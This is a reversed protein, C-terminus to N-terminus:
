RNQDVISKFRNIYEEKIKMGLKEQRLIYSPHYLGYFCINTPAHYYIHKYGHMFCECAVKGLCIVAKPKLLIIERHKYKICNEIESNLPKTNNPPSCFLVNSIYCEDPILRSERIMEFVLSGSASRGESMPIGTINGGIQSPAEGIIMIGNKMNGYSFAIKNRSKVLRNCKSCNMVEKKILELNDIM